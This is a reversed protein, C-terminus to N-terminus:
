KKGADDGAKKKDEAEKAEKEAKEKAEKEKKEKEEPSLEEEKEEKDDEKDDKKDDDKKDGDKKEADDDKKEADEDEEGDKAAKKKKKKTPSKSSKRTPSMARMTRGFLGQVQDIGDDEDQDEEPAVALCSIPFWVENHAVLEDADYDDINDHSDAFRVKVINIKKDRKVIRGRCEARSMRVKNNTEASAGKMTLEWHGGEAAKLKELDEKPKVMVATNIRFDDIKHRVLSECVFWTTGGDPFRVLITHLSHSKKAVTGHQGARSIRLKDKDGTVGDRNLAHCWHQDESDRQKVLLEESV